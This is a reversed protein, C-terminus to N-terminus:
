DLVLLRRGNRELREHRLISVSLLLLSLPQPLELVQIQAARQFRREKRASVNGQAFREQLDTQVAM